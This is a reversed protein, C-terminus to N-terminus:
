GPVASSSLAAARSEAVAGALRKMVRDADALQAVVGASHYVVLEPRM